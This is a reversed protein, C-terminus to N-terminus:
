RSCPVGGRLFSVLHPETLGCFVAAKKYEDFINGRLVYFVLM